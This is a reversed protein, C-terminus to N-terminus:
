KNQELYLSYYFGQQQMLEDHTGREVTKGKDLAYIIDADRVNALKHTIFLVVGREKARKLNSMIIQESVSDLASTAEDYINVPAKKLLERALCIRQKEGGSLNGGNEALRSGLGLPMRNVVAEADAERLAAALEEQLDRASNHCYLLNEQLTRQLLINEQSVLAISRRIDAINYENISRGNILIKGADPEIFGLLMNAVTSKGAGSLGVLATVQHPLLQMNFDDLVTKAGYTLRVHQFEISEIAIVKPASAISENRIRVLEYIREAAAQAIKFIPIMYAANNFLPALKQFYLLFAMVAGITTWGYFIFLGGIIIILPYSLEVAFRTGAEIIINVADRAWRVQWYQKIQQRYRTTEPEINNSAKVLKVCAWADMTEKDLLALAENHDKYLKKLPFVLNIYLEALKLLIAAATLTMSIRSMLLLIILAEIGSWIRSLLNTLMLGELCEIDNNLRSLLYSPTNDYFFQVPKKLIDNFIFVRLRELTNRKYQWNLIKAGYQVGAKVIFIGLWLMAPLLLERESTISFANDVIQRALLPEAINLASTIVCLLAFVALKIKDQTIFGFIFWLNDPLFKRLM